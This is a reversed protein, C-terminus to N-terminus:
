DVQALASTDVTVKSVVGQLEGLVQHGGQAQHLYYPTGPSDDFLESPASTSSLQEEQKIVPQLSSDPVGINRAHQLAADLQTKNQSAQQQSQQSGGCGSTLMVFAFLMCVLMAPMLRHSRKRQM